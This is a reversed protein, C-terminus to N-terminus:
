QKKRTFLAMGLGAIVAAVAILGAPLPAKTTPPVTPVPNLTAYLNVKEGKAPYQTIPANFTSYGPM